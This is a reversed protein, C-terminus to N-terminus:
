TTMRCHSGPQPSHGFRHVEVTDSEGGLMELAADFNSEALTNSDRNRSVPVVLWAQRDSLFARSRDFGTPAYQSYTQM